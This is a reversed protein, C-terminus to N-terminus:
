KKHPVICRHEQCIPPDFPQPAPCNLSICGDKFQACWADSVQQRYHINAGRIVSGCFGSAVGCDSSLKCSFWEPHLAEIASGDDIKSDIGSPTAGFATLSYAVCIVTFLVRVPSIM